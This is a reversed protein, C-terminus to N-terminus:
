TDNPSGPSRYTLTSGDVIHRTQDYSDPGFGMILRQPYVCYYQVIDYDVPSFISKLSINALKNDDSDGSGVYLSGQNPLIPM